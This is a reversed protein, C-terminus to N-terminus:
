DVWLMRSISQKGRRLQAIIMQQSAPVFITNEGAALSVRKLLQGTYNYLYLEADDPSNIQLLQDALLRINAEFGPVHEDTSVIGGITLSNERMLFPTRDAEDFLERFFDIEPTQESFMPAMWKPPMSQYYVGMSVFLEDYYGQTPIHYYIIDAGSGEGMENENFDTDLLANGAILTTDYVTHDKRFGKPPIRNDKLSYDAHTLVTTVAGSVDALVQEYIQVQDEARVTAYHREYDPDHGIVEYNEDWNGSHFLTDGSVTTVLLRVFARRAPYGSPFKHGAKNTLRVALFATDPTRELATLETNLTQFRLMDETASIVEDFDLPTASIDLVDANEKMLKLMNVNAGALEHLYFKFRPPTESGAALYFEGKSLEPMHCTQCSVATTAYESNLWEHYTAQEVFTNGTYNGNLDLTETVLTHCGACIGADSIHESYVPEYQTANLMPSSLPSEFPGYAVRDTEFNINGSNLNGLNEESQQHCALCSVGDLAISDAMMEAMTYYEQGQHL